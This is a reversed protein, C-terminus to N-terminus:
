GKPDSKEGFLIALAKSALQEFESGVPLNQISELDEDEFLMEGTELVQVLKITAWAQLLISDLKDDVSSLAIISQKDRLTPQKILVKIDDVEFEIGKGTKGALFKDRVSKRINQSM